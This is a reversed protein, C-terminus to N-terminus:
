FGDDSSDFGLDYLTNKGPEKCLPSQPRELNLDSFWSMQCDGQSSKSLLRNDQSSCSGAQSLTGQAARATKRPTVTGGLAPGAPQTRSRPRCLRLPQALPEQQEPLARRSGSAPPQPCEPNFACPASQTRGRKRARPQGRSTKGQPQQKGKRRRPITRGKQETVLRQECADCSFKGKARGKPRSNENGTELNNLDLSTLQSAGQSVLDSVGPVQLGPVSTNHNESSTKGIVQNKCNTQVAKDRVPRNRKEAGPSLPADEEQPATTKTGKSWVAFGGPQPSGVKPNEVAPIARAQRPAPEGSACEDQRTLSLSQARPPSTQSTSDTVHRPVRPVSIWRKLEALVNPVNLQGLHECLQQFDKSQQAVLVELRKLNSKM